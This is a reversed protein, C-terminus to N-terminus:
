DHRPEMEVRRSLHLDSGVRRSVENFKEYVAEGLDIDLRAALLDAYIIVDALESAIADKSPQDGRRLKKIQDCVEGCEGAMACAWDTPSWSRLPHFAAECRAVNASRLMRFSRDDWDFRGEGRSTDCM